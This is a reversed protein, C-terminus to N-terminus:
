RQLTGGTVREATWGPDVGSYIRRIHGWSTGKRAKSSEGVLIAFLNVGHRTAEVVCHCNPGIINGFAALFQILIAAPDAESHPEIARVVEGALGHLASPHLVPWGNPPAVYARKAVFPDDTSEKGCRLWGTTTPSACCRKRL